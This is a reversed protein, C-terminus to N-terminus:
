VPLDQAFRDWANGPLFRPCSLRAAEGLIVPVTSGNVAIVTGHRGELRRKNGIGGQPKAPYGGSRFTGIEAAEPDVV